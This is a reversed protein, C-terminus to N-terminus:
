EDQHQIPPGIKKFLTKTTFDIKKWMKKCLKIFDKLKIFEIILCHGRKHGVTM